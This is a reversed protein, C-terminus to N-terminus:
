TLKMDPLGALADEFTRTTPDFPTAADTPSTSHRTVPERWRALFPEVDLAAPLELGHERSRARRWRRHWPGEATALRQASLETRWRQDRYEHLARTKAEAAQGGHIGSYLLGRSAMSNTIGDLEQVLKRTRDDVWARLQRNLDAVQADHDAVDRWASAARAAVAFAGAVVAGIAGGALAVIWSPDDGRNQVVVRVPENAQAVIVALIV